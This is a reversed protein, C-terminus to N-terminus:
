LVNSLLWASSPFRGKISSLKEHFVINSPLCYKISSLIQNFVINSPLHDKIFVVKSPLCSEISSLSQHLGIILTCQLRLIRINGVLDVALSNRVLILCHRRADTRLFALLTIFVWYLIDTFLGKM